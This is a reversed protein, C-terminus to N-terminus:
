IVEGLKQRFLQQWSNNIWCNPWEAEILRRGFSTPGDAALEKFPEGTLLM